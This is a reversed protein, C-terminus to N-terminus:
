KTDRQEVPRWGTVYRFVSRSRRHAGKISQKQLGLDDLVVRIAAEAEPVYHALAYEVDRRHSKKIGEAVKEVLVPDMRDVTM